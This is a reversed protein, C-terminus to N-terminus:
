SLWAQWVDAALADFWNEAENTLADHRSFMWRDRESRDSSSATRALQTSALDATPLTTDAVGDADSSSQSSSKLDEAAPLTVPQSGVLPAEGEGEAAQEAEQLKGNLHNILMIADIPSVYQDRNVDLRADAAPTEGEAGNGVARSGHQNLDNIVRVVDLATM